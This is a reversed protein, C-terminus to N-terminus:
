QVGLREVWAWVRRQFEARAERPPNHCSGEFIELEAGPIGESIERACEVPTLWDYKGVTVL